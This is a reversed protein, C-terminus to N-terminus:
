EWRRVLYFRIRSFLSSFFIIMHIREIRSGFPKYLRPPLVHHGHPQWVQHQGRPAARAGRGCRRPLGERPGSPKFYPSRDVYSILDRTKRSTIIRMWIINKSKKRSCICVSSKPLFDNRINRSFVNQMFKVHFMVINECCNVRKRELKVLRQWSKGYKIM